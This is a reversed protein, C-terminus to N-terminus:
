DAMAEAEAAEKEAELEEKQPKLMKFHVAQVIMRRDDDLDEMTMTLMMTDESATAIEVNKEELMAKREEIKLM